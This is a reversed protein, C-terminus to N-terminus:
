RKNKGVVKTFGDEDVEPAAKPKTPAPAPANGMEIDGDEDESEDSGSDSDVEQVVEKVNVSGTMVEKGKGEEWKQQLEDVTKSSGESLEKRIAFIDKAVKVETEDELRVGFEDELIQLLM